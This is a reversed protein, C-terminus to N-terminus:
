LQERKRLPPQRHETMFDHSVALEEFFADWPKDVPTILRSRGLKTIEVLRVEPSLAVSKPLRVIQGRNTTLVTSRAM